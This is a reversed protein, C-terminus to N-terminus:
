GTRRPLAAAREKLVVLTEEEDLAAAAAEHWERVLGRVDEAKAIVRAEVPSEQYAIDKRDRFRLVTFDQPMVPLPADFRLLRLHLAPHREAMSILHELQALAVEAPAAAVLRALAGEGLLVRHRPPDDLDYLRARAARGRVRQEVEGADDSGFLARMYPEAHLLGPFREGTVALIEQAEPERELLQQFSTSREEARRPRRKYEAEERRVQALVRQAEPGTVALARLVRDLDASTLRTEGSEVKNIKSQTCSLLEALQTQTLGAAERLARVYSRPTAPTVPAPNAPAPYDSAM